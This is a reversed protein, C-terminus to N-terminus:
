SGARGPPPLTGGLASAKSPWLSTFGVLTLAQLGTELLQRRRM